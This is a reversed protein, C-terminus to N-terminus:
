IDSMKVVKDIGFFREAARPEEDRTARENNIPIEGSMAREYNM